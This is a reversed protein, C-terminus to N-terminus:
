ESPTPTPSAQVVDFITRAAISDQGQTGIVIVTDGDMIDVFRVETKKNNKVLYVTLSDGPVVTSIKGGSLETAEFQKPNSKDVKVINIYLSLPKIADTVLIRKAALVNNGNKFGMAVVFDGIAMDAFKIERTTQGTTKIITIQDKDVSIQEIEGTSTKIQVTLEAIDTVTGIYAKPNQLAKEIKEQVKERVSDSATTSTSDPTASPTAQILNKAFETSFVVLLKQQAIAGQPDVASVIIQNAGGNLDANISFSGDNQSQALYDTDEGSVITWVGAKTIGSFEVPAQTLVDENAPKAVAINLGSAPPPTQKTSTSNDSRKMMLNARYIGFAIVLGLFSGALIAFLVEKRM